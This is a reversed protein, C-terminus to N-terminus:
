KSFYTEYKKLIQNNIRELSFNHVVSNRANQGYKLAISPNELYNRIANKIQNANRPPVLIGSYGHKIVEKCGPVDTTIIPLSMSASELISKSLGERWTPLVVIDTKKYIKLINNTRGVFNINKNRMIKKLIKEKLYSKNQKDIDGALNLTFKYNEEWLENCAIILEIIGKEEILRAPFLIQVNKNFKEKIFNEKFYVIDVGSGQIIETNKISTFKKNIFLDRDQINHFINLTNRGSFSYKYIPNLIKNIINITKRKSFFSPGLGTIHNIINNTRTIRAILSGYICPKITFNHVFKPRYKLNLFLIRLLTIFEFIPNESGRVLFLREFRFLYKSIDKYYNDKASILIIRFGKSQLSRFLDKRFNYIYWTCNAIVFIVKMDSKKKKVSRM